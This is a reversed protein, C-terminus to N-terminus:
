KVAKMVCPGVRGRRMPSAIRAVRSRRPRRRIASRRAPGQPARRVVIDAYSAWPLSAAVRRAETASEAALLLVGGGPGLLRGYALARGTAVWGIVMEWERIALAVYQGASLGSGERLRGTVLYCM